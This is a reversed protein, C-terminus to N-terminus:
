GLGCCGGLSRYLFNSERCSSSHTSDPVDIGWSYLLSCASCVNFTATCFSPRDGGSLGYSMTDDRIHSVYGLYFLIVGLSGYSVEVVKHRPHGLISDVVGGAANVKYRRM